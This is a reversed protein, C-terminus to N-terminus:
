EDLLERAYKVLAARDPQNTRARLSAVHREVTRPSLFLREGIEANGLREAVLRLVAFEAVTVGDKRLEAPITDHDRRRRPPPAGAGRLLARCAAAVEPVRRGHFYEEAERLWNLPSGWGDTIACAAALRAGLHRPLGLGAGLDMAERAAEAAADSRGERGLLVARSWAFYTRHVHVQALHSGALEDHERWGARDHVVRLLLYPGEYFTGRIHPVTNAAHDVEAFETLAREPQEELLACLASSHAWVEACHGHDRLRALAQDTPKRRGHAAAIGAEVAAALRQLERLQLRDAAEAAEAGHSSAEVYQGRLLYTSALHLDITIIMAVAGSAHAARRAALLGTPSTHQYTDTVGLELLARIRWAALGHEEAISRWREIHERSQPLDRARACRTLVELAECVVEPTGNAAAREALARAEPLRDLQNLGLVLNAEVADISAETVPDADNARLLRRATSVQDLGIHWRGCVASARAQALHVSARRALPAHAATLAQQVREGLAFVRESGSNPVLLAAQPLASALAELLDTVLAPDPDPDAISLGRELLEVATTFRGRGTARRGARLLVRAARETDGGAAWLDAARVAERPCASEVAQAATRSLATREAATLRSLIAEATLAHRFAPADADGTTILRARAAHRLHKLADGPAIGAVTATIEVPLGNGLVALAELLAVGTTGIRDVRQLIATTVNPPLGVRVDGDVRWAGRDHRLVANGVMAGLLEEVVFPVGGAVRRLHAIVDPPVEGVPTELCHAALEATGDDDLGALRRVTAVRRACAKEALEAAGGPDPRLTALLLVREGALNDVLYDVVALTEADADHLDELLLVTTRTTLLRLVAEARVVVPDPVDGPAEPALRHLVPLYAGLQATGPAEDGRFASLAAEALARLPVQASARGRLVRFGRMAAEAVVESALRSKGIGPEGVLFVAGGRGSGARDVSALLASQDDNRGVIVPSTLHM